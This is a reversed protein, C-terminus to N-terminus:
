YTQANQLITLNGLLAYSVLSNVVSIADDIGKFDACMWSSSDPIVRSISGNYTDDKVEFTIICLTKGDIDKLKYSNMERTFGINTLYENLCLEIFYNTRFSPNYFECNFPLTKNYDEIDSVMLDFDTYKKDNFVFKNGGKNISFNAIYKHPLYTGSDKLYLLYSNTYKLVIYKTADITKILKRM